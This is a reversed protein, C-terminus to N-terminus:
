FSGVTVLSEGLVPEAAPSVLTVMVPLSNVAAVFTLKPVALASVKVTLEGVEIVATVGAAIAPLTSTRTVLVAPSLAGELLSRKLYRGTTSFRAGAAPEVSPPALTVTVPRPNASPLVAVVNLNPVVLALDTLQVLVVVQTTVGGGCAAPVM